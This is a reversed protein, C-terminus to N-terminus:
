KNLLARAHIVSANVQEESGLMRAIEKVRDIDDIKKVFSTPLSSTETKSISFHNHGKAAIQPLHTVCIIQQDKGLLDLLKGVTHATNGGIGADVEDFILSPTKSANAMVVSIALSIRSLEGGSVIKSIKLGKENGAHKVTFNVDDLGSQSITLKKSIDVNLATNEM